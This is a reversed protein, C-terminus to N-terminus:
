RQTAAVFCASLNDEKSTIEQMSQVQLNHATLLSTLPLNTATSSYNRCQRQSAFVFQKHRNWLRSRQTLTTLLLLGGPILVRHIEHFWHALDAVHVIVESAWILDVSAPRLPLPKGYVWYRLDLQSDLLIARRLPERVCEVAIVSAGSSRAYASFEGSGCGLDLM